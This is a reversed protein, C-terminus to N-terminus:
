GIQSIRLLHALDSKVKYPDFGPEYQMMLNRLPDMLLVAGDHFGEPKIQALKAMLSDSPKVRLLSKDGQWWVEALKPDPNDLLLVIRRTRPLDKNLMLQIQRTKHLADLCAANCDQRPIVNVILWHANLEHINDTTFADFGSLESTETTVPPVILQGYNTRGQLWEPRAKFLLAALFPIFAMAFLTLILLRNKKQQDNM